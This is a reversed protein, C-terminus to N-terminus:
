SKLDRIMLIIKFKNLNNLNKFIMKLNKSKLVEKVKAKVKAKDKYPNLL